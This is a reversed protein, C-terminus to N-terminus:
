LMCFLVLSFLYCGIMVIFKSWIKELANRINRHGNGNGDGFVFNMEEVSRVMPGEVEHKLETYAALNLLPCLREDSSGFVIQKSTDREERINKSWTM